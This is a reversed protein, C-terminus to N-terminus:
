GDWGGPIEFLLEVAEQIGRPGWRDGMSRLTHVLMPDLDAIIKPSPMLRAPKVGLFNRIEEAKDKREVDLVQTKVEDLRASLDAKVAEREVEHGDIGPCAARNWSGWRDLRTSALPMDNLWHIHGPHISKDACEIQPYNAEGPM